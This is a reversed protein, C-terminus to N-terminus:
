GKKREATTNYCEHIEEKVLQYENEENGFVKFHAYLGINGRSFFIKEMFASSVFCVAEQWSARLTKHQRDNVTFSTKKKSTEKEYENVTLDHACSVAQTNSDCRLTHAAAYHLLIVATVMCFNLSLGMGVGKEAMLYFVAWRAAFGSKFAPPSFNVGSGNWGYRNGVTKHSQVKTAAIQLFIEHVFNLAISHLLLPPAAGLSGGECGGRWETSRRKSFHGNHHDLSHRM